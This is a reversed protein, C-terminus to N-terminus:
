VNSSCRWNWLAHGHVAMARPVDLVCEELYLYVQWYSSKLKFPFWKTRALMDLIEDIRATPFLREKHCETEQLGCLLPPGREEHCSRCPIALPQGVRRYDWTM